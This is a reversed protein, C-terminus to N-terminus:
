LDSGSTAPLRDVPAPSGNAAAIAPSTEEAPAPEADLWSNIFSAIPVATLLGVLGFVKTGLLLAMIIWIPKLGTFGGLIRPAIVQDLIQDVVLAAILTKVALGPAQATLLLCVLLYGLTDGFPILTMVGIVSGLLLSYPVNLALFVISMLTGTIWGLTVQGIFYRHFDKQLSRRIQVRNDFPLLNFLADWVRKGDLLLYFTLVITVLLASLGGVANLTLLLTEDGM